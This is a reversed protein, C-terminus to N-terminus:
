SRGVAVEILKIGDEPHDELSKGVLCGPQAKAPDFLGALGPSVNVLRDGRKVPGQVMCPVRGVLGIVVSYDGTLGANM